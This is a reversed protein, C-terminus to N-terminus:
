RKKLIKAMKKRANFLRSMVTGIPIDLIRAIDEYSQDEFHRLILVERHDEPLEKIAAQIKEALEKNEIVDTPKKGGCPLIEIIEMSDVPGPSDPRRKRKDIRNLCLNRLVRLFWPLFPRELDFKKLSRFARVFADQSLEMADHHNHLLTLAYSYANQRYKQVLPEFAKADGEAAKELLAKEDLDCM